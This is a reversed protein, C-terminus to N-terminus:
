STKERSCQLKKPYRHLLYPDMTNLLADMLIGTGFNCVNQTHHFDHFRARHGHLLGCKGIWTDAFCYGSHTEYTEWLRAIMWTMAVPWSRAMAVFSERIAAKEHGERSRSEGGTFCFFILFYILSPLANACIEELSSAYEAAVSVTGIYRHHQKHFLRYLAPYSHLTAHAVYFGIENCLNALLFHLSLMAMAAIPRWPHQTLDGGEFGAILTTSSPVRGDCAGTYRLTAYLLGPLVVNQQFIAKQITSKLLAASPLQPPRRPLKFQAMFRGFAAFPYCKKLPNQGLEPNLSDSLLFFGNFLLWLLSHCLYAFVITFLAPQSLRQMWPSGLICRQYLPQVLYVAAVACLVANRCLYVTAHLVMRAWSPRLSRATTLSIADTDKEEKQLKPQM